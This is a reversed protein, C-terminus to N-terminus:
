HDPPDSIFTPEALVRNREHSAHFFCHLVFCTQGRCQKTKSKQMKRAILATLFLFPSKKKNNDIIATIVPRNKQMAFVLSVFISSSAILTGSLAAYKMLPKWEVIYVTAMITIM